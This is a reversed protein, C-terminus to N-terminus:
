LSCIRPFLTTMKVVLFLRSLALFACIPFTGFTPFRALLRTKGGRLDQHTLAVVLECQVIQRELWTNAMVRQRLFERNFSRVVFYFHTRSQREDHSRQKQSVSILVKKTSRITCLVFVRIISLFKASFCKPSFPSFNVFFKILVYALTGLFCNRAM